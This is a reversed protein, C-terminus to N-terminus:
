GICFIKGKRVERGGDSEEEDNVVDNNFPLGDKEMLGVDEVEVGSSM